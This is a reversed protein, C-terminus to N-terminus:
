NGSTTPLLANLTKKNKYRLDMRMKWASFETTKYTNYQPKSSSLLIGKGEKLWLNRSKTKWLIEEQLERAELVELLDNEEKKISDNYGDQMIARQIDALKSEIQQKELHINGFNEKNWLKVQEKIYKM